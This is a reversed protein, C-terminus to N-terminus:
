PKFASMRYHMVKAGEFALGEILKHLPCLQGDLHRIGQDNGADIYAQAFREIVQPVSENRKKCAAVFDTRVTCNMRINLQVDKLETVATSKTPTM